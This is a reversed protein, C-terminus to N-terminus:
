EGAGRSVHFLYQLHKTKGSILSSQDHCKGYVGTGVQGAWSWRDLRNVNRVHRWKIGSSLRLGVWAFQGVVFWFGARVIRIDTIHQAIQDLQMM